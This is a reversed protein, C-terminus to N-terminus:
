HRRSMFVAVATLVVAAGIGGAEATRTVSPSSNSNSHNPVTVTLSSLNGVTTVVEHQGNVLVGEEGVVVVTANYLREIAKSARELGNQALIESANGILYDISALTQHPSTADKAEFLPGILTFNVQHGSRSVEVSFSTPVSLQFHQEIYSLVQETANIVPGEREMLGGLKGQLQAPLRLSSLASIIEGVERLKSNSVNISKTVKFTHSTLSVNSSSVSYVYGPQLLAEILGQVMGLTTNPPAQTANVVADLTLGLRTSSLSVQLKTINIGNVGQLELHELAQLGQAQFPPYWSANVSINVTYVAPSVQAQVLALASVNLQRLGQQGEAEAKLLYHVTALRGNSTYSLNSYRSVWQLGELAQAVQPQFGNGEGEELGGPTWSGSAVVSVAAGGSYITGTEVLKLSTIHAGRLYRGLWKHVKGVLPTGNVTGNIILKVTSNPYVLVYRESSANLASVPGNFSGKGHGHHNNM